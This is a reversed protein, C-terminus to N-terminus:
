SDCGRNATLLPKEVYTLLASKNAHEKAGDTKLIILLRNSPRHEPAM